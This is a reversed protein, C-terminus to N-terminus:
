GDVRRGTRLLYADLRDFGVTMGDKMGTALAADRAAKSPYLITQTITTKGDKEALMLTDLTEPWPEGWSSTSVLREPPKVEKYVGGMEMEQGDPGRLVFRWKGGVRLDIECVPMTWGDPGTMWNPLHEPKTWADFVMKRPADVVRSIVVERDSPTTYTTGSPRNTAAM